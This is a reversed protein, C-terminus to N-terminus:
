RKTRAQDVRVILDEAIHNKAFPIISTFFPIEPSFTIESGLQGPQVLRLTIRKPNTNTVSVNMINSLEIKEEIDNKKILLFDECDYVEDALDWVLKKMIIFSFIAAVCPIILAFPAKVYIRDKLLGFIFFTLFGFWFCPFVKKHIFTSTSSIKTMNVGSLGPYNIEGVTAVTRRGRITGFLSGVLAGFLGFFLAGFEQSSKLHGVRMAMQTFAYVFSIFFGSLMGIWVLKAKRITPINIKDIYSGSSRRRKETIACFVIASCFLAIILTFIRIGQSQQLYEYWSTM